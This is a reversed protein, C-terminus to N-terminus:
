KAFDRTSWREKLEARDKGINDNVSERLKGEDQEDRISSPQNKAEATQDDSTATLKGLVDDLYYKGGPAYSLSYISDNSISRSTGMVGVRKIVVIHTAISCYMSNALRDIPM